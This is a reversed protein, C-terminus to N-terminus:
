LVDYEDVNSWQAVTELCGCREMCVWTSNQEICDVNHVCM